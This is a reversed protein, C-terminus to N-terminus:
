DLLMSALIYCFWLLLLLGSQWKETTLGGQKRHTGQVCLVAAALLWLPGGIVALVSTLYFLPELSRPIGSASNALTVTLLFGLMAVMVIWGVLRFQRPFWGGTTQQSEVVGRSSMGIGSDM